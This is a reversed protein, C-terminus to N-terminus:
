PTVQPESTPEPPVDRRNAAEMEQLVRWAALGNERALKAAGLRNVRQRATEPELPAAGADLDDAEPRGRTLDVAATLSIAYLQGLKVRGVSSLERITIESVWGLVVDAKRQVAQCIRKLDEGELYRRIAERRAAAKTLRLGTKGKAM